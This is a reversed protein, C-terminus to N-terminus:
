RCTAVCVINYCTGYLQTKKIEQKVPNLCIHKHTSVYQIAVAMPTAPIKDPPHV